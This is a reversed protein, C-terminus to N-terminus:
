PDYFPVIRQSLPSLGSWVLEKLGHQFSEDAGVVLEAIPFAPFSVLVGGYM